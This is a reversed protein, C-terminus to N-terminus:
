RLSFLLAVGALYLILVVGSDLGLGLIVRGRRKLLGVLWVATLVIGLLGAVATSMGVENLVAPGPYVADALLIIAADLINAGFINAYAMAYAGIRVAGLTTSVEPLSTAVAVLVAGMFAAGLGTREALVDGTTALVYGATLIALAALSLRLTLAAGSLREGERGAVGEHSHQPDGERRPLWRGPTAHQHILFFAVVAAAFVGVAWVGVGLVLPDPLIVGATALALVMVLLGAQLLVTDDGVRSSLARGRVIWDALALVAVQLAIGGFINNVALPANGIASASVTTSAEPLSTVGGLLLAGVFARGIGTREAVEEAYVALRIGAVWVLAAAALFAAGLGWLPLAHFDPVDCGGHRIRASGPAVSAGAGRFAWTVRM